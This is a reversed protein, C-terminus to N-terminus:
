GIPNNPWSDKCGENMVYVGWVTAANDLESFEMSSFKYDTGNVAVHVLASGGNSKVIATVTGTDLVKDSCEDQIAVSDGIALFRTTELNEM